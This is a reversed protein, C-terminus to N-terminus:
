EWTFFFQISYASGTTRYVYCGIELHFRWYGSGSAFANPGLNGADLFVSDTNHYGISIEANMASVGAISSRVKLATKGCVWVGKAVLSFGEGGTRYINPCAMGVTMGPNASSISVDTFDRQTISWQWPTFPVPSEMRVPYGNLDNRAPAGSCTRIPKVSM